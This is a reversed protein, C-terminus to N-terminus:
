KVPGIVFGRGSYHRYLEALSIFREQTDNEIWGGPDKIFLGLIEGQKEKFGHALVVHGSKQRHKKQRHIFPSVSLLVVYEKKLLRKIKYLPLFKEIQSDIDYKSKLFQRFNEWFIGEIKNIKPDEKYAGFQLAQKAFEIPKLPNALMAFNSSVMRLCAIACINWSWRKYETKDIAGSKRWLPDQESMLSRLEIKQNLERSEWQSFYHVPYSCIYDQVILQKLMRASYVAHIQDVCWVIKSRVNELIDRKYM